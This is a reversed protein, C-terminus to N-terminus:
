PASAGSAAAAAGRGREVLPAGPRLNQRGDLVVREGPQVGEVAADAGEAHLVKVPRSQAQGNVAVYVVPGRAAEIVAAQPIVVAGALSRAQMRVQVFAGPWLRTGPNPFVAKAKVTGSAADM